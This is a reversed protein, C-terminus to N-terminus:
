LKTLTNFGIDIVNFYTKFLPYLNVDTVLSLLVRGTGTIGPISVM